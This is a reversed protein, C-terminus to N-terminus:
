VQGPSPQPDTAPAIAAAPAPVAAPAPAAESASALAPEDPTRAAAFAARLTAFSGLAGFGLAWAFDPMYDPLAEPLVDWFLPWFGAQTFSEWASLGSAEGFAVAADYVIGAFFAVVLTVATTLLVVAAGVRSIRGAGWVYLRLAVFAVVAGVIAAVFGLGWVIVWAAVGVPLTVLAALTGRGINERAAAPPTPAVVDASTDSM